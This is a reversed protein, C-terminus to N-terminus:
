EAISTRRIGGADGEACHQQHVDCSRQQVRLNRRLELMVLSRIWARWVCCHLRLSLTRISLIRDRGVAWGRRDAM